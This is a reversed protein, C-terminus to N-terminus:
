PEPRRDRWSALDDPPIDPESEVQKNRSFGLGILGAIVLVAGAIMLWHPMEVLPMATERQVSRTLWRNGM